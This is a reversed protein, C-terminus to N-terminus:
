RVMQQTLLVDIDLICGQTCQSERGVIEIPMSLGVLYTRDRIRGLCRQGRLVGFGIVLEIEGTQMQFLVAVGGPIRCIIVLLCQTTIRVVVATQILHSQPKEATAAKGLGLFIQPTSLLHEVLTVRVGVVTFWEIM